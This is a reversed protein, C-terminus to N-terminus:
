SQSSSVASGRMNVHLAFVACEGFAPEINPWGRLDQDLILVANPCHITPTTDM